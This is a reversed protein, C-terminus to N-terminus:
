QSQESMGAKTNRGNSTGHIPYPNQPDNIGTLMFDILARHYKLIQLVEERRSLSYWVHMMLYKIIYIILILLRYLRATIISEKGFYLYTSKYSQIFMKLSARKNTVDGFHIIRCDPLFMIKWGARKVRRCFDAGEGFMFFREDLLGVTDLVTKRMIMGSEQPLDIERTTNGDSPFLKRLRWRLGSESFLTSSLTPFRRASTPQFTGDPNIMKCGIMGIDPNDDMYQIAVDLSGNQVLTDDNLLMLYRGSSKRLNINNNKAFGFRESNITLVVEPFNKRILDVSGDDSANDVVLIEYTINFTNGIITRICPELYKWNSTNIISISLDIM